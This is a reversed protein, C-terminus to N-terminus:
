RAFHTGFDIQLAERCSKLMMQTRKPDNQSIDPRREAASHILIDPKVTWLFENVSETDLLNLKQIGSHIRNLGLGIIDFNPLLEAMIARGLLGSAGTLVIKSM